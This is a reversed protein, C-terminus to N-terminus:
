NTCISVFNCLMNTNRTLFWKRELKDYTTLVNVEFIELTWLYTLLIDVYILSIFM